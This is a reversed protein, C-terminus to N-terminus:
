RTWRDLIANIKVALATPDELMAFHGVEEMYDIELGPVSPAVEILPLLASSNITAVPGPYGSSREAVDWRLLADMYSVGVQPGVAAMRDGIQSPLDVGSPDRLVIMRTLSRLQDSWDTALLELREAIEASPRVHYVRRDTFTDVGIVGRCDGGLVRAAEIAVPGGLSHGILVPRDLKLHHALSAVDQGLSEISFPLDRIIPTGGHGPLDLVVRDRGALMHCVDDWFSGRCCWGHVFVLPPEDGVQRRWSIAGRGEQAWVGKTAADDCDIM